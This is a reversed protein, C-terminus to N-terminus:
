RLELPSFISRNSAEIPMPPANQPQTESGNELNGNTEGNADIEVEVPTGVPGFYGGAMASPGNPGVYGYPTYVPGHPYGQPWPHGYWNHMLIRHHYQLQSMPHMTPEVGFPAERATYHPPFPPPPIMGPTPMWQPVRQYYYGLQTTDTPMAIQPFVPATAGAPVPQGHWYTPYYNTYNVPIRHIPVKVPRTFGYDPPYTTRGDHSLMIDIPGGKGVPPGGMWEYTKRVPFTATMHTLFAANRARNHYAIGHPLGKQVHWPPYGGQFMSYDYPSAYGPYPCGPQHGGHYAGHSAYVPIGASEAVPAAAEADSIRILGPSQAPLPSATAGGLLAAFTAMRVTKRIPM